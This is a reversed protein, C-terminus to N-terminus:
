NHKIVLWKHFDCTKRIMGLECPINYRVEKAIEPSTIVVQKISGVKISFIPGYKEAWSTFTHHPKEKMLQLLNGLVPLGPIAVYLLEFGL